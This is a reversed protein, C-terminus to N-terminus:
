AKVRTKVMVGNRAAIRVRVRVIMKAIVIVM